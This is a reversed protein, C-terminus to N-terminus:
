AGAPHLNAHRLEYRVPFRFALEASHTVVMLITEQRQHLELLLSAVVNASAQDLNGTPEDCLLLLPERILARALAVRQKEGGSLAGPRRDLLHAIGLLAVVADFDAAADGGRAGYLLNGRVTYHPFLLGDQFVYGLRRREPALDINRESDFLVEGDVVIRGRDPRLLGALANVLSTKGAGSRGYLATIGHTESAFAADLRFGGLQKEVAVEIM